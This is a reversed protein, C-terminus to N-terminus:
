KTTKRKKKAPQEEEDSYDGRKERARKDAKEAQEDLEDWTMGEDDEDEEEEDFSEDDDTDMDSNYEESDEEIEGDEDQEDPNYEDAPDDDPDSDNGTVDDDLDLFSKWGTQASWPDWNKIDDRITKMIKPWVLNATGEFYKIEVQNLWDKLLDLKEIPISSISVVPKNYDKLVFVLDFNKLGFKIREFHAIEVDDLTLVFFPVETLSVLCNVTPVLMVSSRFPTGSFELDRYPADFEIGSKLEVKQVFNHFERNLKAKLARERAEEEISEADSTSRRFKGVLQDYEEVIETYFQIDLHAKKGIMIPSHLHFHLLVIIDKSTAQQFFAHKINTFLIDVRGPGGKVNGQPSFRLGNEHCELTGVVKKGPRMYVDPLRFPKQTGKTIVIDGQQVERGKENIDKERQTIRKRLDQIARLATSLNEPNKSRYTIEKIFTANPFMKAPAYMQGFNQQATKFNIRLIMYDAEDAKSVNKITAIHFPVHTGNIPLLVTERKTDVYIRNRKVDKPYDNVTKYSFIEGKALKADVSFNERDGKNDKDKSRRKFENQKKSLIEDQQRKRRDEANQMQGQKERTRTQRIDGDLDLMDNTTSAASPRDDEDEDDLTYSNDEYSMKATTLATADGDGVLYTDSILLSYQKRREDKVKRTEEIDKFGVHICFAMNKVITTDNNADIIYEPVYTTVGVAYGVHDLFHPLLAPRKIEVVAKAAKYIQSLKTGVKLQRKVADYVETLLTYNKEEDESSSVMYTRGITACYGNYKVGIQAIITGVHMENNDSLVGEVQLNYNGAGSQVIPRYAVEIVDDKHAKKKYTSVFDETDEALKAHTIKKDEDITTEMEKVFHRKLAVSAVQGANKLHAIEADTHVVFLHAIAASIDAKPVSNADFEKYWEQVFAGKHELKDNELVGIKRGVDISQLFNAYSVDKRDNIVIMDPNAKKLPALINAKKTSTLFHLKDKSFFMVTDTFEYGLLWTGLVTSKKTDIEGDEALEGTTIEFSDVNNWLAAHQKHHQFLRKLRNFFVSQDIVISM